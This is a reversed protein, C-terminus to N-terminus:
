FDDCGGVDNCMDIEAAMMAENMMDAEFILLWFNSRKKLSTSFTHTSTLFKNQDFNQSRDMAELEVQMKRRNEDDDDDKSAKKM